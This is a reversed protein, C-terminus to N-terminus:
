IEHLVGTCVRLKKIIEDVKFEKEIEAEAEQLDIDKKNARLCCCKTKTSGLKLRLWLCCTNQVVDASHMTESRMM